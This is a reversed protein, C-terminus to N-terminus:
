WIELEQTDKLAKEFDVVVGVNGRGPNIGINLIKGRRNMKSLAKVVKRAEERVKVEALSLERVYDDLSINGVTVSMTCRVYSPFIEIIVDGAILNRAVKMLESAIEKM